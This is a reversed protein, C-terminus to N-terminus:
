LIEYGKRGGIKFRNELNKEEPNDITGLAKMAISLLYVLEFYKKGVLEKIRM